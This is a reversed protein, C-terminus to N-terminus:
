FKVIDTNCVMLILRVVIHFLTKSRSNTTYLSKAVSLISTNRSFASLGILVLFTVCGALFFKREQTVFILKM